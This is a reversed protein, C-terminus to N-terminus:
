ILNIMLGNTKILNKNIIMIKSLLSLNIDKSNKVRITYAGSNEAAQIGIPSDEIIVTQKPSVGASIMCKLYIESSPKALIVDNNSYFLDIYKLYGTYHLTLKVTERISNSAVALIFGSDKLAKLTELITNSPTIKAIYEITKKQKNLYITKHHYEPLGKNKTLLKLKDFTKMGDYISIHENYSIVFSDDVEKIADNLAHFHIDKMDVLVGDLDFIILKIV